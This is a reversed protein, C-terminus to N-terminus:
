GKATEDGGSSVAPATAPQRIASLVEDLMFRLGGRKGTRYVTVRGQRGLRYLAPKKLNIANEIAEATALKGPQALVVPKPPEIPALPPPSLVPKASTPKKKTRM